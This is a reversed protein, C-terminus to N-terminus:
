GGGAAPPRRAGAAARVRGADRTAGVQEYVALARDLTGIAASRTDTRAQAVRAAEREATLASRLIPSVEGIATSETAPQDQPYVFTVTPQVYVDVARALAADVLIRSADARLRDNDRWAQPKDLEALPRIRTALHLIADVDRCRGVSCEV